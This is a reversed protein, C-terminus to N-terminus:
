DFFIEDRERKNLQIISSLSNVEGITFESKGSLKKSLASDSIGMKGAIFRRFLGKEAITKNLRELDPM